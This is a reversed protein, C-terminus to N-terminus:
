IKKAKHKKQTGNPNEAFECSAKTRKKQNKGKKRRKEKHEVVPANDQDSKSQPVIVPPTVGSFSCLKAVLEKMTLRQAPDM